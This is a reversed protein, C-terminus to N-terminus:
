GGSLFPMISIEAEDTIVISRAKSKEAYVGDVTILVAEDTAFGVEALVEALVMGDRYEVPRDNVTVMDSILFRTLKM